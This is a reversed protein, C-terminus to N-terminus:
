AVARLLGHLEAPSRLELHKLSKALVRDRRAALERWAVGAGGPFVVEGDLRPAEGECAALVRLAAALGAEDAPRLLLDVDSDAHLHDRGSIWQWALSGYVQAVLGVERLAEDVRALRAQWADPAVTVAQRLTPNPERALLASAPASFAVRRRAGGEALVVALAVQGTPVPPPGGCWSM